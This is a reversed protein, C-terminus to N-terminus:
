EESVTGIRGADNDESLSSGLARLEPITVDPHHYRTRGATKKGAQIAEVPCLHICGCCLECHHNWVPKRNVLEINHAPCISACIGCGTCTDSVSFNQDKQHVHSAFRSYLLTHLVWSLLSRPLPQEKCEAIEEAIKRVKEDASALINRQKEGTPPEYMLLYNGPMFVFYGLSLGRGSRKRLIDDLQALASEGGGGGYTLVSFINRVNALNLRQAFAAVM